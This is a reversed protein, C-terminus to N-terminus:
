TEPDDDPIDIATEADNLLNHFVERQRVMLALASYLVKFDGMPLMYVHRAVIEEPQRTRPNMTIDQVGPGIVISIRATDRDPRDLLGWIEGPHYGIAEKGPGNRHKVRAYEGPRKVMAMLPKAYLIFDQRLDNVLHLGLKERREYLRACSLSVM